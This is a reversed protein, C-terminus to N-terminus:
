PEAPAVRHLRRNVYAHRAREVPIEFYRNLLFACALALGVAAVTSTIHLRLLLGILVHHVLYVPYSLEGLLRDFRSRSTGAFVGPLLVAVVVPLAVIATAHRDVWQYGVVVALVAVGYAPLPVSNVIFRRRHREVLAGLAFLSLEIPFFRYSWPEDPISTALVLIKGAFGLGILCLLPRTRLRLLLPALLYFYLELSLTWGQPVLLYHYGDHPYTTFSRALVLHGSDTVGCFTVLDLGLATLNAAVVALLSLPALSVKIPHESLSSLGFIVAFVASVVLVLGYAPYIRLFRAAVFTRWQEGLSGSLGYKTRIVLSMYFGSIVFFCEVAGRGGVLKLGFLPSTHVIVVSIALILRLKGV